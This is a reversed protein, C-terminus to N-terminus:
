FGCVCTEKTFHLCGHLKLQDAPFKLQDAGGNCLTAIPGYLGMPGLACLYPAISVLTPTTDGMITLPLMYRNLVDIKLLTRRNRLTRFLVPDCEEGEEINTIITTPNEILHTAAMRKQSKWSKSLKLSYYQIFVSGKSGQLSPDIMELNSWRIGYNNISKVGCAPLRFVSGVITITAYM